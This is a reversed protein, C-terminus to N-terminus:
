KDDDGHQNACRLHHAKKRGQLVKMLNISLVQTCLVLVGVIVSYVFVGMARFVAMMATVTTTSMKVKSQQLRVFCGNRITLALM